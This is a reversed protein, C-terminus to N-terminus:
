PLLQARAPGDDSPAVLVVGGAARGAAGLSVPDAVLTEHLRHAVHWSARQYAQRTFSGLRPTLFLNNCAHLPTGRSAFGAEAGDLLAAEIRGDGLAAALAEPDFLASRSISVWLQGPKCNELVRANVFHRYRSAYMMQVSVAEAQAMLQELPVPQVNLRSWIAAGHHVAPDYGIVKVGLANLMLAFAHATPGLGLLGVVSGGLERGLRVEAHREGMVPAALGHRQLMLLGALLYEANSRVAASSADIVRVDRDRCAELDTNDTSVHLRAVAQLRPAFALFDRTVALKRPVVLARTSYIAARLATPDAALEPRCAVRHRDQLWGQAEPALRELLLIDM